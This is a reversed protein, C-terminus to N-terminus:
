PTETVDPKALSFKVRNIDRIIVLDTKIQKQIAVLVKLKKRLVRRHEQTSNLMDFIPKTSPDDPNSLKYLETILMTDKAITDEFHNIFQRMTAKASQLQIENMLSM